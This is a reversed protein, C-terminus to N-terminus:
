NHNLGWIVGAEYSGISGGGSLAVARCVDASQAGSIFALVAISIKALKKFGM